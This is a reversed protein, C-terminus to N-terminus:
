IDASTGPNSKTNKAQRKPFAVGVTSNSVFGRFSGGPGQERLDFYKRQKIVAQRRLYESIAAIRSLPAEESLNLFRNPRVLIHGRAVRSSLGALNFNLACSLAVIKLVLTAVYHCRWSCMTDVDAAASLVPRAPLSFLLLIRPPLFM